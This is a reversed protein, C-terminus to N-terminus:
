HEKCDKQSLTNDERYCRNRRLTSEIACSPTSKNPTQELPGHSTDMHHHGMAYRDRVLTM